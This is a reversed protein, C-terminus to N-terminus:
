NASTETKSSINAIKENAVVQSTQTNTNNAKEEKEFNEKKLSDIITIFSVSGKDGERIGSFSNYKEALDKLAEVRKEIDKVDGNIYNVIRSIGEENFQTMGSSLQESGEKLTNMGNELQNLGDTLSTMSEAVKKLAGQKVQGGVQVAITEATKEATTPVAEKTTSVAVAPAVQEAISAATEPLSDYVQLLAGQKTGTAALTASNKVIKQILALQAQQEATGQSLTTVLTQYAVKEADTLSNILAQQSEASDLKAKEASTLEVQAIQSKSTLGLKQLYGKQAGEGIETEKEKIGAVARTAITTEDISSNAAQKAGAKIKALTEDDIPNSNDSTLRNISSSVANKMTTVGSKATEVGNNLQKSGDELKNSASQLDNVKSYIEDLKDFIDLDNKEILKANTYTIINNMEFNEAKMEIVISDPIDVTDKSVGLSEQLGPMCIGIATAKTGNDLVKGRTIKIDQNSNKDIITGAVVVFPTYLKENKGNVYVTHVDNNKYNLTVKVNGKKGVIDKAEVVKGDLEYKIECTIPMDKQSDGQYQISNGKAKWVINTGNQTFEEDGNTNKINILDAIDELLENKNDNSIKTSVIKSYVEGNNNVKSYVTEEKTNALVPVSYLCMTGLLMTSVVKLGINKKM